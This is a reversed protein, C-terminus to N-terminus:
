ILLQFVDRVWFLFQTFTIILKRYLVSSMIFYPSMRTKWQSRIMQEIQTTCMQLEAQELLYFQRCPIYAYGKHLPVWYAFILPCAWKTVWLTRWLCLMFIFYLILYIFHFIIHDLTMNCTRELTQKRYKYLFSNRM